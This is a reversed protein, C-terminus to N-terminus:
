IGLRERTEAYTQGATLSLQLRAPPMTRKRLTNVREIRVRNAEDDPNHWCGRVERHCTEFALELYYRFFFPDLKTVRLGYDLLEDDTTLAVTDFVRKVHYLKEETNTATAITHFWNKCNYLSLHEGDHDTTFLDNLPTRVLGEFENTQQARAEM